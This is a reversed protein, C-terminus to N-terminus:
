VLKLLIKQMDSESLRMDYHENVVNIIDEIEQIHLKRFSKKPEIPMERKTLEGTVMISYVPYRLPNVYHWSDKETMEYQTGAPLILKCDTKPVEITKSHGVGMEYSGKLIKIASKWPHPHYLAEISDNCPEIKHLYVRYDFHQYWIRKVYPKHYDIYMSHLESTCLHRRLGAEIDSLINLM